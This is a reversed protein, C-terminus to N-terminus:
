KQLSFHHHYKQIDLHQLMLIELQYKKQFMNPLYNPCFDFNNFFDLVVQDSTAQSSALDIQRLYFDVGMKTAVDKLLPDDTNVVIRDFVKSELAKLLAIELVTYQGIKLYNKRALRVSGQRVPVMCINM